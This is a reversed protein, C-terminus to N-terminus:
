LFEGDGEDAKTDDDIKLDSFDNWSLVDLVSSCALEGDPWTIKWVDYIKRPDIKDSFVAEDFGSTVLPISIGTVINARNFASKLAGAMLNCMERMHDMAMSDDIDEHKKKLKGALMRRSTSADFHLKLIVRVASGAVLILSMWHGYLFDDSNSVEQLRHDKLASARMITNEVRFRIVQKLVAKVASIDVVAKRVEASEAGMISGRFTAQNFCFPESMQRIPLLKLLKVYARFGKLHRNALGMLM